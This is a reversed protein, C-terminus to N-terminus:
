TLLEPAACVACNLTDLPVTLPWSVTPETAMDDIVTEVSVALVAMIPLPAAIVENFALWSALPITGDALSEPVYLLMVPTPLMSSPEQSALMMPVCYPPVPCFKTVAGAPANGYKM